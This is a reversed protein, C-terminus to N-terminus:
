LLSVCYPSVAHSICRKSIAPVCVVFPVVHILCNNTDARKTKHKQERASRRFDLQRIQGGGTVDYARPLRCKITRRSRDNLSPLRRYKVALALLWLPVRCICCLKLAGQQIVCRVVHHVPQNTMIQALLIRRSRTPCRPSRKLTWSNFVGEEVSLGSDSCRIPVDAMGPQFALHSPTSLAVSKLATSSPQVSTM